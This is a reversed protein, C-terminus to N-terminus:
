FCHSDTLEVANLKGSCLTGTEQSGIGKSEFCTGRPGESHFQSPVEIPKVSYSVEPLLAIGRGSMNNM